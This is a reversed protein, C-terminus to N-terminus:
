ILTFNNEDDASEEGIMKFFANKIDLGASTSFSFKEGDSNEISSIPTVEAATGTFFAGEFEALRSPSIDEQHIKYGLNKAIDIVTSRTIGNLIKGLKPTFLSKGSIFFINEGPGEAINGCHDLLLAEDFGQKKASSTALLSNVYHGSIKADCITSKESIRAFNSIKVSVSDPLYKGWEWAAILVRTKNKATTIGLASEDFFVLPRIYASQLNNKRLVELTAEILEKKSQPIELGIKEASYFLRDIHESLKFVGTGNKIKYARIGEFVGSGYHLSHTMPSINSKSLLSFEGDLYVILNKDFM